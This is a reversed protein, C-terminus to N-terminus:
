ADVDVPSGPVPLTDGAVVVQDRGSRKAVLLASDAREVAESFSSGPDFAAWGLSVTFSPLSSGELTEALRARVREAVAVADTTDCEPLVVLFEEGGYRAPIDDPRISERLVRSFLRLARDGIDHGHVDNLMKFHDLDAYLVAYRTGSRDLDYVRDEISRRNLLGTLADTQAQAQSKSFARLMAMREGAKRAILELRSVAEEDPPRGEPGTTRVVGIAKGGISVPM